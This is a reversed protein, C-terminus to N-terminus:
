LYFRPMSFIEFASVNQKFRLSAHFYHNLEAYEPCLCLMKIIYHSQLERSWRIRRSWLSFIVYGTTQIWWQPLSSINAKFRPLIRYFVIVCTWWGRPAPRLTNLICFVVAADLANLLRWQCLKNVYWFCTGHTSPSVHWNGASSCYDISICGSNIHAHMHMRVCVRMCRYIYLVHMICTSFHMCCDSKPQDSFTVSSGNTNNKVSDM